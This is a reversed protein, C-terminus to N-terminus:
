RLARGIGLDGGLRLLIYGGAEGNVRSCDVMESAADDGVHDLDPLPEFVGFAEASM